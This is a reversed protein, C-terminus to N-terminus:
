FEKGGTLKRGRSKPGDIKKLGIAHHTSCRALREVYKWPGGATGSRTKCPVVDLLEVSNVVRVALRFSILWVLWIVLILGVPFEIRFEICLWRIKM